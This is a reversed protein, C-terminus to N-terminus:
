KKKFSNYVGIGALILLPVFKIFDLTYKRMTANHEAKRKEAENRYKSESAEHDSKAKQEEYIQDRRKNEVTLRDLEAKANVLDREMQLKQKEWERKEQEELDPPANAEEKTKYLNFQKDAVEFTLLGSNTTGLESDMIVHVGDECRGSRDIRLKMVYGNLNVWRDGITNKSDYIEYTMNLSANQISRDRRRIINGIPSCPHYFTKESGLTYAIIDFEAIYVGHKLRDVMFERRVGVRKTSGRHRDEKRFREDLLELQPRLYHTESKKDDKSVVPEMEETNIRVNQEVEYEKVLILSRSSRYEIGTGTHPLTFVAGNRDKLIVTVGTLNVYRIRVALGTLHIDQTSDKDVAERITDSEGNLLVADHSNLPKNSM